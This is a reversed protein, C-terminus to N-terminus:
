AIVVAWAVVCGLSKYLECFHLGLQANAGEREEPTLSGKKRWQAVGVLSHASWQAVRLFYELTELQLWRRM